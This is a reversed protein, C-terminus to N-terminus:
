MLIKNILCTYNSRLKPFRLLWALNWYMVVFLCAIALLPPNHITRLVDREARKKRCAFDLESRECNHQVLSSRFWNWWRCASVREWVRKQFRAIDIVTLRGELQKRPLLGTCIFNVVYFIMRLLKSHDRLSGLAADIPKLTPFTTYLSTGFQPHRTM